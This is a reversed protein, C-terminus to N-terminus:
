FNNFLNITVGSETKLHLRRLRACYFNRTSFFIPSQKLHQLQKRQSNLVTYVANWKKATEKTIQPLAMPLITDGNVVWCSEINPYAKLVALTAGGTGLPANERYFGFSCDGFEKSFPHAEIKEAMYGTSFIFKRFGQNHFHQVQWHLFPKNKVLAMPKPRDPNVAQLRTGKGGALILVTSEVQAM